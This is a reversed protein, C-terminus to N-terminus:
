EQVSDVDLRLAAALIEDPSPRRRLGPEVPVIADVLGSWELAGLLAGSAGRSLSTALCTRIGARRLARLADEAGPLPEAEGRDIASVLAADFVLSAFRARAPDPICLALMEETPASALARRFSEREFVDHMAVDSGAEDLAELLATEIVGDLPITTGMTDLVVALILTGLPNSTADRAIFTEM